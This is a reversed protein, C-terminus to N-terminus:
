MLSKDNEKSKKKDFILDCIFITIASILTVVFAIIYIDIFANIISIEVQYNNLIQIIVALFVSVIIPLGLIYSRTKTSQINM